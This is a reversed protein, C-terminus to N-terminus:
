SGGFIKRRNFKLGFATPLMRVPLQSHFKAKLDENGDWPHKDMPPCSENIQGQGLFQDFSFFRTPMSSYVAKKGKKVPESM